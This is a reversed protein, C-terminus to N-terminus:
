KAFFWGKPSEGETEEKPAEQTEIQEEQLADESTEALAEEEPSSQLPAFGVQLHGIKQLSIGSPSPVQAFM